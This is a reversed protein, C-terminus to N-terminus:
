LCIRSANWDDRKVVALTHATIVSCVSTFFLQVFCTMFYRIYPLSYNLELTPCRLCCANRSSKIFVCVCVCVDLVVLSLRWCFSLGWGCTETM